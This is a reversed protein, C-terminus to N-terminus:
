CLSGNETKQEHYKIRKPGDLVSLKEAFTLTKFYQFVFETATINLSGHCARWLMEARRVGIDQALGKATSLVCHATYVGCVLFDYPWNRESCHYLIQNSGDEEQKVCTVHKSYPILLERIQPITDGYNVFEVVVIPWKRRIAKRVAFCVENILFPYNEVGFNPQM